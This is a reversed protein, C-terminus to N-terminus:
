DLSYQELLLLLLRSSSSAKWLFPYLGSLIVTFFHQEVDRKVRNWPLTRSVPHCCHSKKKRKKEGRSSHAIAADPPQLREGWIPACINGSTKHGFQKPSV